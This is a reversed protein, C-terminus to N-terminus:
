KYIITGISKGGLVDQLQEPKKGNIIHVKIENNKTILDRIVKLKNSMGGTGIDSSSTKCIKDIYGDTFKDIGLSSITENGEIVGDSSTNIIVEVEEFIESCSNALLATTEDNDGFDGNRMKVLEEDTVFDNDNVQIVTNCTNTNNFLAYIIELIKKKSVASILDRHTLLSQLVQKEPIAKSWGISLHPNGLASFIRKKIIDDKINDFKNGLTKGFAVAGSSVIIVPNDIKNIVSGHRNINEYDISIQGDSGRNILTNSGYKIITLKKSIKEM